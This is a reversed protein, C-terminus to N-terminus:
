AVVQPPYGGHDVLWALVLCAGLARADETVPDLSGAPLDVSVPVGDGRTWAAVVEDIGPPLPDVGVSAALAAVRVATRPAEDPALGADLALARGAVDLRHLVAAWSTAAAGEDLNRHAQDARGDLLCQLADVVFRSEAGSALTGGWGSMDTVVRLNARM